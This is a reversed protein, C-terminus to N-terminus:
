PHAKLLPFCPINRLHAWFTLNQEAQSEDEQNDEARHGGAGLGVRYDPALTMAEGALRQAITQIEPGTAEECRAAMEGPEEAGGGVLMEQAELVALQGKMEPAIRRGIQEQCGPEAPEGGPLGDQGEIRKGEDQKGTDEAERALTEPQDGGDERARGAQLIEQLVLVGGEQCREDAAAQQEQRATWAEAAHEDAKGGHFGLEAEHQRKEQEAARRNGGGIGCKGGYREGSGRKESEARFGPGAEEVDGARDHAINQEGAFRGFEGAAEDVDESQGAREAHIGGEDELGEDGQASDGGGQAGFGGHREKNEGGERAGIQMVVVEDADREGDGQEHLVAEDGAKRGALGDEEEEGPEAGAQKGPGRLEGM